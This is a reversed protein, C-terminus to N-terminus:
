ALLYDITFILKSSNQNKNGFDKRYAAALAHEELLHDFLSVRSYGEMSRALFADLRQGPVEVRMLKKM